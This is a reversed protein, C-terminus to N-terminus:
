PRKRRSPTERVDDTASDRDRLDSLRERVLDAVDRPLDRLISPLERLSVLVVWADDDRQSGERMLRETTERHATKDAALQAELDRIRADRAAIEAAHAAKEAAREGRWDRYIARVAQGAFGSGALSAAIAGAWQPLADTTM